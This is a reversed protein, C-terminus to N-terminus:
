CLISYFLGISRKKRATCMDDQLFFIPIINKDKAANIMEDRRSEDKAPADTFIYLKSNEKCDPIGIYLITVSQFLFSTAKSFLYRPKTM